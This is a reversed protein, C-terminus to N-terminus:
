IVIDEGFLYSIRDVVWSEENVERDVREPLLCSRCLPCTKQDHDLWKDLCKKHFFHCCNSLERIEDDKEFSSLCVACMIDDEMECFREAFDGFKTVPLMQRIQQASVSSVALSNEAPEQWSSTEPELFESLGISRLVWFIANRIYGLLFAVNLLLRPVAVGYYGAPFGM